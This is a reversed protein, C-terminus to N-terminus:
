GTPDTTTTSCPRYSDAAVVDDEFQWVQYRDTGGILRYSDLLRDLGVREEPQLDVMRDLDVVIVEPPASPARYPGIEEALCHFPRPFPMVVPRDALRSAISTPASLSRPNLDAVLRRVVRQDDIAGPVLLPLVPIVVIWGVTMGAVLWRRLSRRLRTSTAFGYTGAIGGGVLLSYWYHHVFYDALPWVGFLAVGVTPLSVLLWRPSRLTPVVGLPLLWFLTSIAIHANFLPELLLGPQRLASTVVEQPSGGLHAFHAAVSEAEYPNLFLWALYGSTAVGGIAVVLWAQRTKKTALVLGAVLVAAALELRCAAALTALVAIKWPASGRISGVLMLSLFGLGLTTEHLELQTLLMAGPSLVVALLLLLSERSPMGLHLALRYISWAIMLLSGVQLLMMGVLGLDTSLRFLPAFAFLILSLHTSFYTGGTLATQTDLGHALRWAVNGLLATDFGATFAYFRAIRVAATLVGVVALVAIARREASTRRSVTPSM